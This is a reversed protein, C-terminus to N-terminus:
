TSITSAAARDAPRRGVLRAVREYEIFRAPASIASRTPGPASRRSWHHLGRFRARGLFCALLDAIGGVTLPLEVRPRNRLVAHRRHAPGAAEVSTLDQLQMGCTPIGRRRAADDTSFAVDEATLPAATMSARSDACSSASSRADGRRDRRSRRGARLALEARRRRRGDPRRLDAGHRPAADGRTVYGNLTNFTQPNQNFDWTPASM